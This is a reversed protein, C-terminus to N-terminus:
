TERVLKYDTKGDWYICSLKRGDFFRNEMLKICEDAAYSEVFKIKCYGRPNERFFDIKSVQGVKQELELLM